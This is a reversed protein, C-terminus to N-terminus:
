VESKTLQITELSHARSVSKKIEVESNQKSVAAGKVVDAWTVANSNEVHKGEDSKDKGDITTRDVRESAQKIGVCSYQTHDSGSCNQYIKDDGLQRWFSQRNFSLWIRSWSRQDEEFV